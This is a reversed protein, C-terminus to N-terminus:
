PEPSTTWLSDKDITRQNLTTQLSRREPDDDWVVSPPDIIGARLSDLISSRMAAGQKNIPKEYLQKNTKRHNFLVKAIAEKTCHFILGLEFPTLMKIPRGLYLAAIVENRLKIIEKREPM